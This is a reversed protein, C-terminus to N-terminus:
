RRLEVNAIGIALPRPDSGHGTLAPVAPPDLSRVEVRHDGPALTLPIEHAQRASIQWQGVLRGDVRVELRRAEAFSWAEFRLTGSQPRDTLNWAALDAAGYFWRMQARRDPLAEREHWGGDAGAGAISGKDVGIYFPPADGPPLPRYVAMREDRYLPEPEAYRALFDPLTARNLRPDDLLVVIWRVDMYRLAWRGAATPDDTTIDPRPDFSEQAPPLDLIPYDLRRSLYGAVMPREHVTQYLLSRSRKLSVPLELIAGPEASAALQRYFPPIEVPKTPFPVALHEVLLAALLAIFLPRALAARAATRGRGAWDRRIASFGLGALVAVCLTTVFGYRSPVRSINLGPIRQIIQYPLPAEWGAPGFRTQGAVHLTPGLALVAFLAGALLWFRGVPGRRWLGVAALALSLYGLFLAREFNPSVARGGIAEARAGWWTQLPSPVIFSLVDASFERPLYEFRTLVTGGRIQGLTPLLIPLAVITALAGVAAAVALPAVSRRAIMTYATHLLTFLVAFIAYQWDCLLMLLFSLAGLGILLTRRRGTTEHALLLCLIYAPLWESAILNTHEMVLQNAQYSGFAYIVGGVFGALRDGTVHAVLLYAFYASLTFSLFVVANYAATVGFLWQVPLTVFGNFINLTHLYLPAGYPAYVLPTWFPNRGSTLAEATWWFNWYNQWGDSFGGPLRTTLRLVLPYTFAATILLYLALPLLHRRAAVRAQARRDATAVPVPEARWVLDIGHQLQASLSARRIARRKRRRRRIDPQETTARM